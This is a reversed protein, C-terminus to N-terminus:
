RNKGLAFIFRFERDNEAFLLQKLHQKAYDCEHSYINRSHFTMESLRCRRIELLITGVAVLIFM